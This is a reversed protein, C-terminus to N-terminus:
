RRCPGTPSEAPSRAPRDGASSEDKAAMGLVHPETDIKPPRNPVRGRSVDPKDPICFEVPKCHGNPEIHASLADYYELSIASWQSHPIRKRHLVREQNAVREWGGYRYEFYWLEIRWVIENGKRDYYDRARIMEVLATARKGHGRVYLVRRTDCFDKLERVYDLMAAVDDKTFERQAEAPLGLQKRRLDSLRLMRHDVFDLDIGELTRGGTTGIRLDYTADGPLNKFAFKGSTRDFSDAPYAKGTVRSVADLSAVKAAPTVAGTIGGKRPQQALPPDEQLEVGGLCGVAAM